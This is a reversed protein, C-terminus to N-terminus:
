RHLFTRRLAFKLIPKLSRWSLPSQWFVRWTEGGWHSASWCVRYWRQGLVRVLHPESYIQASRNAYWMRELWAETRRVFEMQDQFQFLSLQRHLVLEAPSPMLGLQRLQALRVRDGYDAVAQLSRQNKQGAHSRYSVLVEPINALFTHEATRFWLDYDEAEQFTPDYLLHSSQFVERRMMVTPHAMPTNFLMVCRLTLDDPPFRFIRKAPGGFMELWTGCVGVESHAEMFEVQRALREPRSVDDADMRAVYRGLALELGRNLATVLGQNPQHYIRFRVDRGVYHALVAATEDQSGDDIILFEFDMWTQNLISEIAEALYTGGNYVPMLVTVLPSM